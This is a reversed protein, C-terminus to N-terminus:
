RAGGVVVAPHLSCAIVTGFLCPYSRRHSIGDPDKSMSASNGAAQKNVPAKRPQVRHLSKQKTHIHLPLPLDSCPKESKAEAGPRVHM